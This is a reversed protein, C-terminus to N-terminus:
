SPQSRLIASPQEKMEERKKRKREENERWKYGRQKEKARRERLSIM